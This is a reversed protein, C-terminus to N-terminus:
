NPSPRSPRLQGLGGLRRLRAVEEFLLSEAYAADGEELLRQRKAPEVQLLSGALWVARTTRAASFRAPLELGFLELYDALLKLLQTSAAAQPEPLPEVDALLYEHPELMSVIRFRELGRALVSFRGDPLAEVRELTAVTGVQCLEDPAEGVERGSRILVVGFDRKEAVLRRYRPEFIQLPLV